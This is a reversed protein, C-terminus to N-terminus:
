LLWWEDVVNALKEVVHPRMDHDWGRYRAGCPSQTPLTQSQEMLVAPESLWM